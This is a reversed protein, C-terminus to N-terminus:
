GDTPRTAPDIVVYLVLNETWILKDYIRVYPLGAFAHIWVQYRLKKSTADSKYWGEYRIVARPGVERDRGQRRRAKGRVHHRAHRALLALM